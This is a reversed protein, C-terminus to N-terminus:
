ILNEPSGVLILNSTTWVQPHINTFDAVDIDFRCRYYFEGSWTLVADLAPADRFTAIGLNSVTCPNDIISHYGTHLHGNVSVGDIKVDSLSRVNQVNETLTFGAAGYARKLQFSKTVGDGYGFLQDDALYDRSNRFLFSTFSGKQKNFFGFVRQVAWDLAFDLNLAMEKLYGFKITTYWLPVQRYATRWERGSPARKTQTIFVPKHATEYFQGPMEPFPDGTPQGELWIYSYEGLDYEWFVGGWDHIRTYEGLDMSALTFYEHWERTYNGIDVIFVGATWTRPYKGIDFLITGGHTTTYAYEGLDPYLLTGYEVTARVYEGLDYYPISGEGQIAATYKGIDIGPLVGGHITIHTINGIDVQLAGGGVLTVTYEGLDYAAFTGYSSITAATEYLDFPALDSM